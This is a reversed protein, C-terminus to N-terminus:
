IGLSKLFAGQNPERGLFKNILLAPDATGGSRLITDVYKQGIEKSFENVKILNFIDHAFVESWLYGYYKSGYDTLHGFSNLLNNPEYKIKNNIKLSLEQVLKQFDTYSNEYITLSLFAYYIQTLYTFGADALKMNVLGNIHDDSLQQGTKYHAGLDQLINKQKLWEELMQSPLEVFDRDVETGSKSAIETRGLMAHLAHGFEHFFTVVDQYKLLSPKDKEPKPFNAIVLAAAINDNYAPLITIQCAHSYKFERPYLDMLIYGLFQNNQYLELIKVDPHWFLNNNVVEKFKIGLFNEYINLLKQLTQTAEFYEAIAEQDINLYTQRYNEQAYKLDWPKLKDDVLIIDNPLSKKLSAFEIEAKNQLPKILKELFQKVAEPNKAMQDFTDYSAFNKFNTAKALQDRLNVLKTLNDFNKPAKNLYAQWCKKRLNENNAQQMVTTYNPPTLIIKNNKIINQVSKNLNQQEDVTVEVEPTVLNIEYNYDAAIKTIQKILEIIQKRQDAPLNIGKKEYENLIKQLSYALSPKVKAIKLKDYIKKNHEVDEQFLKDLEIQAHHCSNRVQEVPSVMELIQLTTHIQKFDNWLRDYAAFANQESSQYFTELNQALNQRCLEVAQNVDDASNVFLSALDSLNNVKKIETFKKHMTNEPKNILKVQDKVSFFNLKLLMKVSILTIILTIFIIIQKM